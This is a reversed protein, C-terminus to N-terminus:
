CYILLGKVLGKKSVGEIVFGTRELFEVQRGGVTHRAFACPGRNSNEGAPDVRLELRYLIM